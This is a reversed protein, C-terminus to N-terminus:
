PLLATTTSTTSTTSTSSTTTPTGGYLTTTTTATAPVTPPATTPAPASLCAPLSLPLPAQGNVTADIPQTGPNVCAVTFTAEGNAATTVPNAGLVLWGPGNTLEVVAGATLPNRVVGDPGVVTGTVQIALAAPQDVTPPAPDIVGVVATGTFSTLQLSTRDEQGEPLFFVQPTTLALTPALWARIRYEGGLLGTLSFTGGAGATTTVTAEVAGVVRAAQVTAGAVVGNPGLVTGSITADGGTASPATTTTVGAVRPLVVATGSPLTVPPATVPPIGTVPTPPSFSLQEVSNCGALAVVATVVALAVTARTAVV